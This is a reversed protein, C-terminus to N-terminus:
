PLHLAQWVTSLNVLHEYEGTTFIISPSGAEGGDDYVGSRWFELIQTGSLLQPQTLAYGIESNALFDQIFHLDSPADDKSLIAMYNNPVFKAGNFIIDKPAM